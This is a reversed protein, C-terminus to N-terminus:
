KPILARLLRIRNIQILGSQQGPGKKTKQRKSLLGLILYITRGDDIKAVVNKFIWADFLFYTM